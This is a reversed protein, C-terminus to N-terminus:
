KFYAIKLTEMQHSQKCYFISVKNLKQSLVALCLRLVDLTTKGHKQGVHDKIFSDLRM